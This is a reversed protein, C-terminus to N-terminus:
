LNIKRIYTSHILIQFGGGIKLNKIITVLIVKSFNM